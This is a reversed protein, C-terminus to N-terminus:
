IQDQYEEAADLIADMQDETLRAGHLFSGKRPDEALISEKIPYPREFGNLAKFTLACRWNNERCYAEEEPSLEWLMEVKGVVGYGIFSDGVDTKKALLITTERKWGRMVGSYYKKLEFVQDRWSETSIRLIYGYNQEESM